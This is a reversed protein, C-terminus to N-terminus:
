KASHRMTLDLVFSKFRVDFCMSNEKTSRTCAGRCSSVRFSTGTLLLAHQKFYGWVAQKSRVDVGQCRRWQAPSIPYAKSITNYLWLCSSGKTRISTTQTQRKTSYVVSQCHLRAATQIASSRTHAFAISRKWVLIVREVVCNWWGISLSPAIISGLGDHVLPTALRRLLRVNGNCLVVCSRM